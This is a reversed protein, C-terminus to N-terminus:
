LGNEFINVELTNNLNNKIKDRKNKLQTVLAPDEFLIYDSLILDLETLILPTDVWFNDVSLISNCTLYFLASLNASM